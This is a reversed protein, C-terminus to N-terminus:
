VDYKSNMYKKSGSMMWNGKQAMIGGHLAM